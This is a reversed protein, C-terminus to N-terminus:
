ESEELIPLKIVVKTGKGEESTYKIKGSHKNIIEYILSVGLGSGRKKTTFFPESIKSFIEKPIGEGNDEITLVYSDKDIISTVAIKGKKKEQIAEISNKIVNIIAQSLRNYDGNIYIEDDVLNLKLKINKEDLLPKLKFINDEVLMNIDMIDLDLNSGNILLFDQLLYLLRDVESKMIPIYREVQKQDKVDIMDLYGKIVAIPNKIEHTIKFLSLQIQKQKLLESSEIHSALIGKGTKYMFCIIHVIFLYSIITLLLGYLDFYKPNFKYVWFFYILSSFILMYYVLTKNKMKKKVKILYLLDMVLYMLLLIYIHNFTNRYLFILGLSFVNALVFDDELFAFIIISNIVLMPITEPEKIGFNYTLFFSTILCLKLYLLKAKRSMNKNTSLFILYILMPLILMVVDFFVIRFLNMGDGSENYERAKDFKTSYIFFHYFIM